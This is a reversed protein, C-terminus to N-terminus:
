PAGAGVLFIQEVPGIGPWSARLRVAQPLRGAIPWQEIWETGALFRVDVEGLGEVLVRAPLDPAGDLHARVRRELRGDILHYEVHQVSARSEADPNESGHRTVALLLSGEGGRMVQQRLRGDAERVARLGAQAMDARMIARAREFQGLTDTREGLATRTQVAYGMVAVGASALLAFISLAVLMEVLSFGRM